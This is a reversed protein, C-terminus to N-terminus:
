KSEKEKERKHKNMNDDMCKMPIIPDNASHTYTPVNSSPMYLSCGRGHFHKGSDKDMKRVQMVRRADETSAKIDELTPQNKVILIGGRRQKEM